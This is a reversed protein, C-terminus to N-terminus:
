IPINTQNNTIQNIESMARMGYVFARPCTQRTLQKTYDYIANEVKDFLEPNNEFIIELLKGLNQDADKVEPHAAVETMIEEGIIEIIQKTVSIIM